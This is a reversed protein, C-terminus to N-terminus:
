VENVKVSNSRWREKYGLDSSIENVTQKIDQLILSFKKEEYQMHPMSVGLAAITEGISNKIPCSVGITESYIEEDSISFGQERIIELEKRLENIDVITNNALKKPVLQKLYNERKEGNLNALLLKSASGAYLPARDGINIVLRIPKNSEIIEVYVAEKGEIVALHVTENYKENIRQMYPYAIKRFDHQEVVIKALELLKLGLRYKVDNNSHKSKVILGTEELSSILRFVTTKPLKSIEVLEGLTLENKVKFCDLINIAKILSQSM